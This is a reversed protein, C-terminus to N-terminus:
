AAKSVITHSYQAFLREHRVRHDAVACGAKVLIDILEAHQPLVGHMFTEPHYSVFHLKGWSGDSRVEVAAHDFSDDLNATKHLSFTQVKSM